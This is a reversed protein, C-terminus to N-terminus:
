SNWLNTKIGAQMDATVYLRFMALSSEVLILLIIIIIGLIM